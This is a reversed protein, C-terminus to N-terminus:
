CPDILDATDNASDGLYSSSGVPLNKLHKISGDWWSRYLLKATVGGTQNNHWSSAQDRFSWDGLDHVHCESFALRRGDYDADQYLCVWGRKCNPTGQPALKEGPSLARGSAAAPFTMRVRGQRWSIENAGTQEGGPSAKLVRDLQAQTSSRHTDASAPVAAVAGVLVAAASLGVLIQKRM